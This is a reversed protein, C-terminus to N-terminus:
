LLGVEWCSFCIYYKGQPFRSLHRKRAESYPMCHWFSSAKCINEGRFGTDYQLVELKVKEFNQSGPPLKSFLLNILFHKSYWISCLQSGAFALEQWKLWKEDGVGQTLRMEYSLMDLVTPSTQQGQGNLSCFKLNFAWLISSFLLFFFFFFLIPLSFSALIGLCKRM